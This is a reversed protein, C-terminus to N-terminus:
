SCLWHGWRREEESLQLRYLGVLAWDYLREGKEGDGASLRLAMRRPPLSGGGVERRGGPM